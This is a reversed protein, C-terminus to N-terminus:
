DGCVAELGVSYLGLASMVVAVHGRAGDNLQIEVVGFNTPDVSTLQSATRQFVVENAALDTSFIHEGAENFVTYSVADSGQPAVDLDLWFTFVTGGNFPGGNLFRITFVSCLDSHQDQRDVNVLRSGNAFNERANIQFYEGQIVAGGGVTEIVVYGRVVGTQGALLTRVDISQLQKGALSMTETLFPAQPGDPAHVSVRVDVAQITENRVSLLTTKGGPDSMDIEFFPVLLRSSKVARKSEPGPESPSSSPEAPLAAGVTLALLLGFTSPIRM